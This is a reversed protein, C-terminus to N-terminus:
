EKWVFEGNKVSGDNGFFGACVMGEHRKLLIDTRFLTLDPFGTICIIEKM